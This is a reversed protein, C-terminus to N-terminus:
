ARVLGLRRALGPTAETRGDPHVRLAQAVGLRTTLAAWPEAPDAALLATALADARTADADVVTVAAQSAVPQLTRADLVHGVTRGDALRRHRETQASTIVAERGDAAEDLALTAVLGAEPQPHRIGIQWPRGGPTGMAALNGGLNVLAATVGAARLVDLALDAAHGKGVAGLDLRVRTDVSALRGGSLRLSRTSPPADALRRLHEPSPAPAGDHLRDAHFGWVAVAAGLAINCAGDTADELRRARDILGALDEPLDISRGARIAANIRQLAGPKWANGGRVFRALRAWAAALARDIDRAGRDLPGADPQAVVIEAWSGFLARRERRVIAGAPAPGSSGLAPLGIGLLLAGLVRRRPLGTRSLAHGPAM